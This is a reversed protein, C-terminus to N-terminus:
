IIKPSVIRFNLVQSGSNILQWFFCGDPIPGKEGGTTMYKM